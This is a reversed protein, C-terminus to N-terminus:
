SGAYDEFRRQLLQIIHRDTTEFGLTEVNFRTRTSSGAGDIPPLGVPIVVIARHESVFFYYSPMDKYAKRVPAARFQEEKKPPNVLSAPYEETGGVVKLISESEKQFECIEDDTVKGKEVTGKEAIVHLYKLHDEATLCVMRIKRRRNHLSEKLKEKAKRVQWSGPLPFYALFMVGDVSDGADDIMDVLRDILQPYSTITHKMELITQLAIYTGVFTLTGTVLVFLGGPNILLMKWWVPRAAPYDLCFITILMVPLTIISTLLIASLCDRWTQKNVFVGTVGGAVRPNARSRKFLAWLLMGLLVGAPFTIIVWKKSCTDIKDSNGPHAGQAKLDCTSTHVATVVSDPLNSEGSAIVSYLYLCGSLCLWWLIGSRVVRNYALQRTIRWLQRM